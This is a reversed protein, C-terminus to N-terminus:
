WSMCSPLFMRPTRTIYTTPQSLACHAPPSRASFATTPTILQPAHHCSCRSPVRSAQSHQDLRPLSIPPVTNPRRRQRVGQDDSVDPATPVGVTSTIRGPTVRDALLPVAGPAVGDDPGAPRGPAFLDGPDASTGLV